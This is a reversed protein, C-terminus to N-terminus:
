IIIHQGSHLMEEQRPIHGAPFKRLRELGAYAHGLSFEKHLRIQLSTITTAECKQISTLNLLLITTEHNKKEFKRYQLSLNSDGAQNTGTYSSDSLDPMSPPKPIMMPIQPGSYM